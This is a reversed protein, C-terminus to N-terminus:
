TRLMRALGLQGSTVNPRGREDPVLHEDTNLPSVASVLYKRQDGDYYEEVRFPLFAYKTQYGAPLIYNTHLDRFSVFVDIMESQFEREDLAQHRLRLLRLRQIPDIAHLARKLPLHAYLDELVRQAQDIVTERQRATLDAVAGGAATGSGAGFAEGGTAERDLGPKTATQRTRAAPLVPRLEGLPTAAGSAREIEARMESPTMLPWQPEAGTVQATARADQPTSGWSPVDPM